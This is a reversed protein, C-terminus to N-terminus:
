ILWTSSIHFKLMRVVKKLELCSEIKSLFSSLLLEKGCGSINNRVQFIKVDFKVRKDEQLTGM